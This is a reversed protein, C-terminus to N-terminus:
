ALRQRVVAIPAVDPEALVALPCLQEPFNRKCGAADWRELACGCRLCHLMTTLAESLCQFESESHIMLAGAANMQDQTMQSGDDWLIGKDPQVTGRLGNAVWIVRTGPDLDEVFERINHRNPLPGM